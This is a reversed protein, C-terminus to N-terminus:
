AANRKKDYETIVGNIRAVQQVTLANDAVGGFGSDRKADEWVMGISEVCGKAQAIMARADKKSYSEVVDLRSATIQGVATITANCCHSAIQCFRAIKAENPLSKDIEGSAVLRDYAAYLRDKHADQPPPTQVPKPQEIQQPKNQAEVIRKQPQPRGDNIPVERVTIMNGNADEVLSEEDYLPLGFANGYHRLARKVADTTAAKKASEYGAPTYDTIPQAGDGPFPFAAGVVLLEVDVSYFLGTVDGKADYAKEVERSVIRYSWKGFGFIRNAAEYETSGKLYALMKGGSGKRHKILASELPAELLRLQEVTFGEDSQLVDMAM